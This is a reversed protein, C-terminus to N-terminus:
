PRPKGAVTAVEWVRVVGNGGTTILGARKNPLPVLASARLTEHHVIPERTVLKGDALRYISWGAPSRSHVALLGLGAHVAIGERSSSTTLSLIRKGTRADAVTVYSVSRCWVLTDDRSFGCDDMGDPMDLRARRRGMRADWVEVRWHKSGTVRHVLWRGDHSLARLDLKKGFYRSKGGKVILVRDPDDNVGVVLEGGAGLRPWQLWHNPRHRALERRAGLGFIVVELRETPDYRRAVLARDKYLGLTTSMLVGEATNRGDATGQAMAFRQGTKNNLDWVILQGSADFAAVHDGAASVALAYVEDLHRLGHDVRALTKSSLLQISVGAATALVTGDPSWAVHEARQRTSRVLHGSAVESIRLVNDTGVSAISKGDPSFGTTTARSSIHGITHGKGPEDIGVLRLKDSRAALWKGDASFAVHQASPRLAVVRHRDVKGEHNLHHLVLSGPDWGYMGMHQAAIWDGRPSWAVARIHEAKVKAPRPIPVLAANRAFPRWLRLPMKEGAVALTKGDPSWAVQPSALSKALSAPVPLWKLTELDILHIRDDSSIALYRGRPSFALAECFSQSGPPRLVMFPAGTRAEWLRVLNGASALVKGDPSWALARVESRHRLKGFGLEAVLKKPLRDLTVRRRARSPWKSWPGAPKTAAAAPSPAPPPATVAPPPAKTKKDAPGSCALAVAAAVLCLTARLM